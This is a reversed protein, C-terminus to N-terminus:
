FILFFKAARSDKKWVFTTDICLNSVVNLKIKNNSISKDKNANHMSTSTAYNGKQKSM